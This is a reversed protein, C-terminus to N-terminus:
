KSQTAGPGIPELALDPKKQHGPDIVVVFPDPGADTRPQYTVVVCAGASVLARAAPYQAVVQDASVGTAPPDSVRTQVTLGAATLLAEAVKVPKGVISPVEVDVAGSAAPSAAAPAGSTGDASAISASPLPGSSLATLHASAPRATLASFAWAGGGAVLLCWVLSLAVTAVSARM